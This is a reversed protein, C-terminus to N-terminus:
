IARRSVGCALPTCPKEEFARVEELDKVGRQNSQLLHAGLPQIVLFIAIGLNVGLRAKLGAMPAWNAIPVLLALEQETNPELVLQGNPLFLFVRLCLKHSLRLCLM